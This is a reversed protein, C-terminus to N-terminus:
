RAQQIWLGNQPETAARTFLRELQAYREAPTPAKVMQYWEGQTDNTEAAMISEFMLKQDESTECAIEPHVLHLMSVALSYADAYKPMYGTAVTVEPAIYGVTGAPEHNPTDSPMAAGFDSLVIKNGRSSYLMNNPKVDMHAMLACTHMYHLAALMTDGVQRNLHARTPRTRRAWDLVTMELHESLLCPVSADMALLQHIHGYGWQRELRSVQQAAKRLAEPSVSARYPEAIRTEAMAKGYHLVFANHWEIELDELAQRRDEKHEDKKQPNLTVAGDDRSIVICEDRLLTNPFKVVCDIKHRSLAFTAHYVTGTSGKGLPKTYPKAIHLAHYIPTDGQNEISKNNTTPHLLLKHLLNGLPVRVNTGKVRVETLSM